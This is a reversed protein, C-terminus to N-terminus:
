QNTGLRKKKKLLFQFVAVMVTPASNGGTHVEM